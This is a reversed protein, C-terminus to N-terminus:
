HWETRTAKLGTRLELQPYYGDNCRSYYGHALCGNANNPHLKYRSNSADRSEPKAARNARVRGIRATRLTIFKLRNLGTKATQLDLNTNKSGSLMSIRDDSASSNIIHFTGMGGREVDSRFARVIACFDRLTM